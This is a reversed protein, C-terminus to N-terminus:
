QNKRTEWSPDFGSGGGTSIVSFLNSQINEYWNMESMRKFFSM